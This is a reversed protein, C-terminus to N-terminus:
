IKLSGVPNWNYSIVNEEDYLVYLYVLYYKDRIMLSEKEIGLLVAGGDEDKAVFLEIFRDLEISPHLIATDYISTVNSYDPYQQNILQNWNM